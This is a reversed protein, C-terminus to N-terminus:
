RSASSVRFRISTAQGEPAVARLEHSGTMLRLHEPSSELVRGNLFWRTGAPVTASVPVVTTQDVLLFEDGEVPSTIRM